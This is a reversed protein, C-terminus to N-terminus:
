CYSDGDKLAPLIDICASELQEKTALGILSSRVYQMAAKQGDARRYTIGVGEGEVREVQYVQADPMSSFSVNMGVKIDKVNM